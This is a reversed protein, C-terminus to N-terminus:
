KSATGLTIEGAEPEANPKFEAANSNDAMDKNPQSSKAPNKDYGAKNQWSYPKNNKRTYLARFVANVITSDNRIGFSGAENAKSRAEIVFFKVFKVDCNLMTPAQKFSIMNCVETLQRALEKPQLKKDKPLTWGKRDRLDIYSQHAGRRSINADDGFENKAINDVFICCSEIIGTLEKDCIECIFDYATLEVNDVGEFNWQGEKNQKLALGKVCQNELYSLMAERGPIAKLQEIRQMRMEDNYTAIADVVPSKAIAVEKDGPNGKLFETFTAFTRAVEAHFIDANATLTEGENSKFAHSKMLSEAKENLATRKLM